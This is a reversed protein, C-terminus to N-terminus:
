EFQTGVLDADTEKSSRRHHKGVTLVFCFCFYFFSVELFVKLIVNTLFGQCNHGDSNFFFVIWLSIVLVHIDVCLPM